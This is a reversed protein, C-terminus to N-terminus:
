SVPFIARHWGSVEEAKAWFENGGLIGNVDVVSFRLPETRRPSLLDEVLAHRPVEAELIM